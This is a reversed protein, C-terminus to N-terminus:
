RMLRKVRPQNLFSENLGVERLSEAIQQAIKRGEALSHEAEKQNGLELQVKALDTLIVWLHINSGSQKALSCAQTLIQLAEDFRGLGFLAHGKWHLVEPVDVRTLPSVEDLLEDAMLLAKEFENKAMALEINALCVFITYRAYPISTPQLLTNGMVQEASQVDNMLLHM